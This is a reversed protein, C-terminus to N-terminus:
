TIGLRQLYLDVEEDGCDGIDCVNAIRMIRGNAQGDMMQLKSLKALCKNCTVAEPQNTHLYNYTMTRMCLTKPMVGNMSAYENVGSRGDAYYHRVRAM